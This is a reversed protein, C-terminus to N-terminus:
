AEERRYRCASCGLGPLGPLPQLPVACHPCMQPRAVTTPQPPAPPHVVARPAPEPPAPAPTAVRGPVRAGRRPRPRPPAGNTPPSAVQVVESLGLLYDASVQLVHVLRLLTTTTIGRLQGHELKHIYPGDLGVRQGLAAQSLGRERRIDLLRTGHIM